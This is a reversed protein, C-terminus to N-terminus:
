PRLLYPVIKNQLFAIQLEEVFEDPVQLTNLHINDQRQFPSTGFIKFNPEHIPPSRSPFGNTVGSIVSSCALLCRSTTMELYLDDTFSKILVASDILSGCQSKRCFKNSRNFFVLLVKWIHFLPSYWM